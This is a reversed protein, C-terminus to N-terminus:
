DSVHYVKSTHSKFTYIVIFLLAADCETRNTCDLILLSPQGPAFKRIFTATFLNDRVRSLFAM